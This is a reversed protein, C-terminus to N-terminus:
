MRPAASPADELIPAELKFRTAASKIPPLSKRLEEATPMEGRGRLSDVAQSVLASLKSACSAGAKWFAWGDSNSNVVHRWDSLYKAYPAIEPANQELISLSRDIEYENMWM